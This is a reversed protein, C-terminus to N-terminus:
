RPFQWAIEGRFIVDSSDQGSVGNENSVDEFTLRGVARLNKTLWAIIAGSARWIEEREPGPFDRRTIDVNAELYSSPPLFYHAELFLDRGDTDMHHGLVRGKYRHPWGGHLYWVERKSTFIDGYEIRFDAKKVEGISPLFIGGMGAWRSPVGSGSQDEGGAEIYLVVPQARFPIRIKADLSALSNGEPTNGPSESKGLFVDFFTSLSESHGEGGWQMVRSAGLELWPTPKIALRLGSLLPDSVPRDDDDLRSVFFDYQFLGLFRFWGGLLIPRPNRLRIGILTEANTTFLMSGHRGPGWWLSFKGGELTAQPWGLRISTEEVRGTNNGSFDLLIDGRAQLSVWDAPFARFFGGVRVGGDEPVPWGQANPPVRGDGSYELGARLRFDYRQAASLQLFRLLGITFPDGAEKDKEAERAVEQAELGRTGTMLGQLFGMGELKDIALYTEPEEQLFIEPGAAPCVGSVSLVILAAIATALAVPTGPRRQEHRHRNM